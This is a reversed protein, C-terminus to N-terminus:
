WIRETTVRLAYDHQQLDPPLKAKLPEPLEFEITEGPRVLLRKRGGGGRYGHPGGVSQRTDFTLDISGDHRARGTATGGVGVRVEGASGKLTIPAFGYTADAGQGAEARARGVADGSARDILWLDFGLGASEVDDMSRFRLELGIAVSDCVGPADDARRVVDLIGRGRDRLVFRREQTLDGELLVGARPVRRQWRVDVIAEEGDSSVPTAQVRWEASATADYAGLSAAPTQLQNTCPGSVDSQLTVASFSAADPHLLLAGTAGQGPARTQFGAIAFVHLEPVLGGPGAAIPQAASEFPSGLAVLALSLASSKLWSM